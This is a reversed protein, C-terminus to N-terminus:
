VAHTPYLMKKLNNDSWRSIASNVIINCENEALGVATLISAAIPYESLDIVTVNAVHRLQTEISSNLLVGGCIGLQLIRRTKFKQITALNSIVEHYNKPEKNGNIIEINQNGRIIEDIHFNSLANADRCIVIQRLTNNFM